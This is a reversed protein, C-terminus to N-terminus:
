HLHASEPCGRRQPQLQQNQLGRQSPGRGDGAPAPHDRGLHRSPGPAAQGRKAHGLGTFSDDDHYRM